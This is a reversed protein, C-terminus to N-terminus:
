GRSGGTYTQGPLLPGSSLGGNDIAFGPTGANITGTGNSLSYSICKGDKMSGLWALCRPAAQVTTADPTSVAAFVPAAVAAAAFAGVAIATRLTM